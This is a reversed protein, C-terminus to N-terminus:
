FSNMELLYTRRKALLSVAAQYPEEFTGGFFGDAEKTFPEDIPKIAVLAAGKLGLGGPLELYPAYWLKMNLAPVQTRNASASAALPKNRFDQLQERGMCLVGQGDADRLILQTLTLHDCIIQQLLYHRASAAILSSITWVVRLKLGGNTYFSEPLSSTDDQGALGANEVVSLRDEYGGQLFLPRSLELKGIMNEKEADPEVLGSAGLIVCSELTSGFEARWKLVVGDEVGLEGGPLEIQLNKIAKFIKLVEGPSHHSVDAPVTKKSGMIHQFAQLPKVLRGVVFRFLHGLFGRERVNLATEEGTIVCDVKVTVNEVLLALACFRKSVVRCRGLARIDGIRNLIQLVVCDHLKEFPDTGDIMGLPLADVIESCAKPLDAALKVEMYM